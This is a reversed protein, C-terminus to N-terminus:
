ARKAPSQWAPIGARLGQGIPTASERRGATLPQLVAAMEAPLDPLLTRLVSALMCWPLDEIYDARHAHDFAVNLKAAIAIPGASDLAQIAHVLESEAVDFCSAREEIPDNDGDETTAAWSPSIAGYFEVQNARYRQWLDLAAVEGATAALPTTAAAAPASAAGTSAERRIVM